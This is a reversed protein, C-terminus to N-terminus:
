VILYVPATAFHVLVCPSMTRLSLRCLITGTSQFNSARGIYPGTLRKSLNLPIQPSFSLPLIRAMQLQIIVICECVDYRALM